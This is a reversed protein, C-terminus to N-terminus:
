PNLDGKLLLHVLTRDADTVRGLAAAWVREGVMRRLDDLRLHHEGWRFAWAPEPMVSRLGDLQEHLHALRPHHGPHVHANECALCLLFSAGCSGGLAPWPSADEDGCDATATEQHDPDPADALHGAFAAERAQALAEEAGAAIVERSERQVRKDPLVYRREHTSRSHQMPQGQRVTASRRTRQFPSGGLRHVEAWYGGDDDSVGFTLPGVPRPRDMEQQERGVRSTRATMLLDSGPRLRDALARAPQTTSLAQTILRGPSDAGSDTIYETSFWHGSGRRRKEVQVQYTVTASEGVSATAQPTPMRDYVSLNWGFEATLLVALSTLERRSLFLRGWTHRPNAGGLLGRNAVTTQGSPGVTRPVDGTRALHDLVQGLRWDRGGETLEGARWQELLRTNEEIRIWAARFEQRAVEKIQAYEDDEYSQVKSTPNPVRRALEEAAPGTLMRHDLRLLTRVSGLITRGTSTAIHNQRWRKLTAATLDELDRPPQELKSLFRTFVLLRDWAGRATEHSTWHASREAFVVALSRQLPEPVELEGFDYVKPHRAKNM